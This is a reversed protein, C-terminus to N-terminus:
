NEANTNVDGYLTRKWYLTSFVLTLQAAVSEPIGNEILQKYYTAIVGAQDRVCADFQEILQSLNAM